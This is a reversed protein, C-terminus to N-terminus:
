EQKHKFEIFLGLWASFGNDWFGPAPPNAPWSVTLTPNFAFGPHLSIQPFLMLQDDAGKFQPERSSEGDGQFQKLECYRILITDITYKKYRQLYYLILFVSEVFINNVLTQMSYKEKMYLVLVNFKM